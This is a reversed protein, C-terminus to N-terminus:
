NVRFYALNPNPSYQLTSNPVAVAADRDNQLTAEGAKHLVHKALM